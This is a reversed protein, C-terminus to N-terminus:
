RGPYKKHYYLVVGLLIVIIIFSVIYGAAWVWYDSTVARPLRITVSAFIAFIWTISISKTSKTKVVKQIQNINGFWVVLLGIIYLWDLTM